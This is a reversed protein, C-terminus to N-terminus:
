QVRSASHSYRVTPELSELIHPLSPGELSEACVRHLGQEEAGLTTRLCGHADVSNFRAVLATNEFARMEFFIERTLEIDMYYEHVRVNLICPIGGGRGGYPANPDFERRM